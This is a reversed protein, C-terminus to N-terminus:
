FGLLECACDHCLFRATEEDYADLLSQYCDRMRCRRTSTNHADSSALDILGAKFCSRLWLRTGLSQHDILTSANVQMHVDFHDRLEQVRRVKRLCRYREIHAYIATYGASGLERAAGMLRSYPTDPSFEVLVFSTGALTPIQREDLLRVTNDTYFIEAGLHLRLNAGNQECWANAKDLHELCRELPFPKHGPTAHPTAVLDSVGNEVACSLMAAMQEFSRAGDDVGYLFHHHMDVFM